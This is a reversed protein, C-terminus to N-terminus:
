EEFQNIIRDIKSLKDEIRSLLNSAKRRFERKSIMGRRISVELVNLEKLLNKFDAFHEDIEEIRKQLSSNIDTKALLTKIRKVRSEEKSRIGTLRQKLTQRKIDGNVYQRWSFLISEALKLREKELGIIKNITERKEDIREIVKKKKSKISPAKIRYVYLSIMSLLLIFIIIWPKIINEEKLHLKIRVNIDPNESTLPESSELTIIEYDNVHTGSLDLIDGKVKLVIQYDDILRGLSVYAPVIYHANSQNIDIDYVILLYTKEDYKNPPSRLRVTIQYHDSVNYVKYGIIADEKYPGLIGRIEKLKCYTPLNFSFYLSKTNTLSRLTLNDYFRAYDPNDIIITRKLESVGLLPTKLSLQAFIKTSNGGISTFNYTVENGIPEIKPKIMNINITPFSLKVTGNGKWGKPTLTVPIIVSITNNSFNYIMEYKYYEVIKIERLSSKLNFILENNQLVGKITTKNTIAYAVIYENELGDLNYEIKAVEESFELKNVAKIYGERVEIDKEVKVILEDESYVMKQHIVGLIILLILLAILRRQM